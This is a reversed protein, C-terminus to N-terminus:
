VNGIRESLANIDSSNQNNSLKSDLLDSYAKTVQENTRLSSVNIVSKPLRPKSCPLSVQMHTTPYRLQMMVMFHDTDFLAATNRSARCSTILKSIYNRTTIYDLRKVLGTPKHVWTGRHIRKTRFISNIIKFKKESRFKLFLEGNINTKLLSSNNSGLINGWAGSDKSDMGITANFDGLNISKFRNFTLM